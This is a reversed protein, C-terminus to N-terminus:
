CTITKAEVYVASTLQSSLPGSPDMASDHLVATSGNTIM